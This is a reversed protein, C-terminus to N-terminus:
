YIWRRGFQKLIEFIYKQSTFLSAPSRSHDRTKHHLNLLQFRSHSNVLMEIPNVQSM